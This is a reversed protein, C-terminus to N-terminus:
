SLHKQRVILVAGLLSVTAVIIFSQSACILAVQRDVAQSLSLWAAPDAPAGLAAADLRGVLATRSKAAIDQWYVDAVGAGIANALLRLVNKMAYAHAYDLGKFEGFTLGAVQFVVLIPFLGKLLVVPLLQAWATEGTAVRALWFSVGAFLLFGTAIVYRRDPLRRSFRFYLPLALATAAAGLSTLRGTNLLDFAEGSLLYRPLLLAMAGNLLYYLTYFGLGALYRRSALTDLKFWPDPHRRLRRFLVAFLALGVGLRLLTGSDLPQDRLDELTHMWVLVGSSLALLAWPDLHGLDRTAHPGRPLVAWVALWVLAGAAAHLVFLAHWDGSEILLAALWSGPASFLFLGLMFGRLQRPRREPPVALQVLVRCCTLLPGGGLGQIVRAAILQPLTEALSACLAGIVFLAMGGLLLDRPHMVRNLRELLAIGLAGAVAYATLVWLFEGSSVGLGGRIASEAFNVTANNLFDMSTALGAVLGFWQRRRRAVFHVM